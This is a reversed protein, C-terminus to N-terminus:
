LCLEGFSRCFRQSGRRYRVDLGLDTLEGCGEDATAKRDLLDRAEGNEGIQLVLFFPEAEGLSKTRGESLRQNADRGTRHTLYPFRVRARIVRQPPELSTQKM